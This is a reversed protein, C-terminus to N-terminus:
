KNLNWKTRPTLADVAEPRLDPPAVYRLKPESMNRPKDQFEDLKDNLLKLQNLTLQELGWQM